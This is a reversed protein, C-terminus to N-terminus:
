SPLSKLRSAHRPVHGHAETIRLLAYNAPREFARADVLMEWKFDLLAPLGLREHELLNNARQRLADWFLISREAFDRQYAFFDRSMDSQDRVSFMPTAGEAVIISSAGVPTTPSPEEPQECSVTKQNANM